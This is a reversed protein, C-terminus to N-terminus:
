VGASAQRAVSSPSHPTGGEQGKPASTTDAGLVHLASAPHQDPAATGGNTRPDTVRARSSGSSPSVQPQGPSGTQPVFSM